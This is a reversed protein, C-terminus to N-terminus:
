VDNTPIRFGFIPTGVQLIYSRSKICSRYSLIAGSQEVWRALDIMSKEVILMEWEMWIRGFKIMIFKIRVRLWFHRNKTFFQLVTRYNAVVISAFLKLDFPWLHRSSINRHYKEWNGKWWFAFPLFWDWREGCFAQLPYLFRCLQGWENQPVLSGTFSRPWLISRQLSAEYAPTLSLLSHLSAKMTQWLTCKVVRLHLEEQFRTLWCESEFCLLRESGTFFRQMPSTERWNMVDNNSCGRAYSITAALLGM